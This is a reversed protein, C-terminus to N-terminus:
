GPESEKRQGFTSMWTRFQELSLGDGNRMTEEAIQLDDLDEAPPLKSWDVQALDHVEEEVLGTLWADLSLGESAARERALQELEPKLQVTIAVM